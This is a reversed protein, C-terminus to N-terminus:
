SRLSSSVKWEDENIWQGTNEDLRWIKIRNEREPHSVGVIRAPSDTCVAPRTVDNGFSAWLLRVCLRHCPRCAYVRAVGNPDDIWILQLSFSDLINLNFFANALICVSEYLDEFLVDNCICM